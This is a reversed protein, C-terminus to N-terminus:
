LESINRSSHAMLLLTKGNKEIRGYASRKYTWEKGVAMQVHEKERRM